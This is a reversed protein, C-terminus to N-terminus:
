LITVLLFDCHALRKKGQLQGDLAWCLSRSESFVLALLLRGPPPGEQLEVAGGGEAAQPLIVSDVLRAPCKCGAARVASLATPAAPGQGLVAWLVGAVRSPFVTLLLGEQARPPFCKLFYFPSFTVFVM